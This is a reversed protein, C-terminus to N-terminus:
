MRGSKRRATLMAGCGLLLMGFGVGPYKVGYVLPTLAWRTAARLSEHGRIFDAAPPSFRYYAEVLLRGGRWTLLYDDRFRRLVMVQPALYSGYAATAIFCGGSGGGGGRGGSPPDAPTIVTVESAGSEDSYTATVSAAGASAGVGAGASTIVFVAPASSVWQALSTVDQTSGDSYVATATFQQRSGVTVTAAAPSVSIGTITRQAPGTVTVRSAGSQGEYLATIQSTGAQQGAIGTGAGTVTIVAPDSSSWTAQNTVNQTSGDSYSATATFQQQAGPDLSVTSPSVAVSQLTAGPTTVTVNSTGAVGTYTASVTSAGAGVASAKGTAAGITLVSTNSSAWSAQATVDESSTDSYIATATFQEVSGTAITPSAPSVSLRVLTLPAASVTLNATGSVAGSAAAITTSGASLGCALGNVPNAAVPTNSSTWAAQGTLDRTSGDSYRGTAAFQAEGGVQIHASPPSVTISSLVIEETVSASTTGTIGNLTATIAATGTGTLTALGSGSITLASPNSSSWAVQNTVDQTPLWGSYGGQATFQHTTVEPAMWTWTPNSPSVTISALAASPTTVSIPTSPLSEAAGNTGRVRYYYITSPVVTGDTYACVSGTTGMVSYPGSASPARELVYGTVAGSALPTWSLSVQGSGYQGSLGAPIGLSAAMVTKYANVRGATSVLGALATKTDVNERVLESLELNTLGPAGALALAAIGAVIPSAMSTGSDFQYDEGAFVPLGDSDYGSPITYGIFVGAGDVGAGGPSDPASVLELRVYLQSNDYTSGDLPISAAGTGTIQLVPTWTTNDSSFSVVLSDGAAIDISPLYLNVVVAYMGALSIRGSTATADTNPPYIGQVCTIEPNGTYGTCNSFLEDGFLYYGQSFPPPYSWHNNTGGFYWPISYNNPPTASPPYPGVYFYNAWNQLQGTPVTYTSWVDVGPAAVQVSSPGYNTFFIPNDNYDTAAVTLMGPTTAAWAAPYVPSEDIDAGANGSAAVFLGGSAIFNEIAQLEITSADPGGFSANIISAHKMTAYDIGGVIDSELCSGVNDCVKVPMISVSWNVGSVGENNNGSAGIIGAVHTGHGLFDMVENNGNVFNWGRCDNAYGDGDHDTGDSCTEGPNSWINPALDTHHYDVGSDLVAVIVSRSGTAVTWARPADVDAGATGQVSPAYTDSPTLLYKNSQDPDNSIPDAVTQGTNKLAWQTGLYTDNPVVQFLRRVYNPEVAEVEPDNRYREVAQAVSVNRALRIRRMRLRPVRALTKAGIRQVHSDQASENTGKKYRVLVEGPAYGEVGNTRVGASGGPGLRFPHAAEKPLAPPQAASISCFVLIAIIAATLFRATHRSSTRRPNKMAM